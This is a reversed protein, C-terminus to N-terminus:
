NTSVSYPYYLEGKEKSIFLPKVTGVCTDPPKLQDICSIYASSQKSCIGNIDIYGKCYQNCITIYLVSDKINNVKFKPQVSNNPYFYGGGESEPVKELDSLSVVNKFDSKNYQCVPKPKTVIIKKSQSYNNLIVINMYVIFGLLIYIFVRSIMGFVDTRYFLDVEM